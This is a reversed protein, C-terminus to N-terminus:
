LYYKDNKWNSPNNNIYDVIKNCVFQNRIIHEYYNRQWIRKDFSKWKGNKVGRIYENTTMTKFWQIVLHLPSGAHEGADDPCVCLDAGVCECNINEVIFHMHNPMIVMDHCFIDKFKNEIESYWGEVMRGVENLQMEREYVEGFLCVMGQTCLTVFYLGEQSYDYKTLRTSKRKPYTRTETM